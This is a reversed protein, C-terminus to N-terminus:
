GGGTGSTQAESLEWLRRAVGMDRAAASPTAPRRDAFYGGSPGAVDRADALWVLTEAGVAPSRAFPRVTAMTLRALLGNSRGFNTAVLGPEFCYATVGTGDLRRALEVTFLINALKTEAYRGTPGGVLRRIPAYRRDAGLDDFDIRASKHNDSSTTIIRAPASAKLRELLLTTLLFPGLHNLAWTLELGDDTLRRRDFMAGANNVLVDIRPCRALMDAAVRRVSRQSSMDALFVDVAAGGGAAAQIRAASEQARAPDRGVIGLRAGRRALEGAAALGIGATAGTIVV